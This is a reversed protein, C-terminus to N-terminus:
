QDGANQQVSRLDAAVEDASQYRTARDKELCRRIVRVFSEPVGKRYTDVPIPDKQLISYALAGAHDGSFPLHCTTLEYLVVGLSFLDSRNDAERGQIQEPSMYAATGLTSGTRTLHTAGKFKALGFYTIKVRGEETLMVNDTKVDRHVIQRRHAHALGDAMQIGYGLVEDLSFHEGRSLLRNVKAKLTGGPLFELSLFKRGEAEDFEYITAINPHNLASIAEAERQFRATEDESVTFNEPLFKLAVIRHLKVDEAKYVVGM